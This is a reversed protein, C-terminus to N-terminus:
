NLLWYFPGIKRIFSIDIARLLQNFLHLIILTKKYINLSELSLM